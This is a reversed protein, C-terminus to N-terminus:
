GPHKNEIKNGYNTLENLAFSYKEAWEETKKLHKIDISGVHNQKENEIAQMLVEAVCSFIKGKPIAPIQFPYQEPLDVFGGDVRFIDTRQQCVNYSLNPPQSVDIVIANKKLHESKLLATHHSTATVIVDANKTILSTTTEFDGEIKEKLEDLKNERRGILISHNFQSVLIKSVAEGIIGYAGIIAITVDSPNKNFMELSKLVIQCTVASTYSDGHNVYGTYEDQDTVWKGGSTVSTTLAGLQILDIDLEDQLFLALDLIKNRITELPQNIIQKATLKLGTIRGKTGNLDLEPSYIWKDYVWEKPMQEINKEHMLHGITAFKM